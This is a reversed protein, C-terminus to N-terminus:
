KNIKNIKLPIPTKYIRASDLQGAVKKPLKDLEAKTNKAKNMFESSDKSSNKVTGTKIAETTKSLKTEQVVLGSNYIRTGYNSENKLTTAAAFYKYNANFSLDNIIFNQEEVSRVLNGTETEWIKISGDNCGTICYKSDDSFAVATIKWCGVTLVKLPKFTKLDWIIATKDNSGSVLYKYNKSIAIANVHDKHGELKKFVQGNSLNLLKIVPEAGAVFLSSTNTYTAFSSIAVTNSITKITKKNLLDWIIIKGEECGSFLFRGTRDFQLASINANHKNKPDEPIKYANYISDWIIVQFDKGGTAIFSGTPTYSMCTIPAAHAAFTKVLQFPSDAKYVMIKQDWTGTVLHKNKGPVFQAFVVDNTQGPLIAIPKKILDQAQLGLSLFLFLNLIFKM